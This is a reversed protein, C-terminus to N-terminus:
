LFLDNDFRNRSFQTENGIGVFSGENFRLGEFIFLSRTGPGFNDILEWDFKLIFRDKTSAILRYKTMNVFPSRSGDGYDFRQYLGGASIGFNSNFGVIPLVAQRIGTRVTDRDAATDKRESDVQASAYNVSLFQWIVIFILIIRIPLLV